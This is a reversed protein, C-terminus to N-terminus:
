IMKQSNRRSGWPARPMNKLGATEIYDDLSNELMHHCPTEDSQWRKRQLCVWLRRNQQYVDKVEISSAAGIRAFTYTM